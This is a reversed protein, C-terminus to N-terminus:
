RGELARMQAFITQFVIRVSQAPVPGENLTTLRQLVQEEREPVHIPLNNKKKIEGISLACSARRNLMRLMESDIEDIEQRYRDISEIETDESMTEAERTIATKRRM